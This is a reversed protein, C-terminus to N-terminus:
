LYTIGNMHREGASPAAGEAPYGLLVTARPKFMKPIRLDDRWCQEDTGHFAFIPFYAWCSALGLSQAAILMNQASAGCVADYQVTSENMSIIIVVPAGYTGDFGPRLFLERQLGGMKVGETIAAKNMRDILVRDRLVTFHRSDAVAYPACQGATLVAELMEPPVRDPKYSRISRRTYVTHLVENTM